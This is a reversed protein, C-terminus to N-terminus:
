KTNAIADRAGALADRVWQDKEIGLAAKIAASTSDQRLTGLARAAYGRVTRDPDHLLKSLPLAARKDGLRDLSVVANARVKPNAHALGDKILTQIQEPAIIPEHRLTALVDARNWGPIQITLPESELVGLYLEGDQPESEEAEGPRRPGDWAGDRQDASSDLRFQLTVPQGRNDSLTWDVAAGSGHSTAPDFSWRGIEVEAGPPVLLNRYAIRAPRGRNAWTHRGDIVTGTSDRLVATISFVEPESIRVFRREPGPQRVLARVNIRGGVDEQVLALFPTNPARKARARSPAALLLLSAVIFWSSRRAGAM